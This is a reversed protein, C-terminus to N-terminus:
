LPFKQRPSVALNVAGSIEAKFYDPSGLMALIQGTHPDLAVLAADTANGPPTPGDKHDAIQQLRRAAIEQAARTLDLDLTTTVVLGSYLIEPSYKQELLN